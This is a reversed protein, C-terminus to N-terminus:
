PQGIPVYLASPHAKDHVLTVNVTRADAMTEDSVNKGSNFNRQTSISNIPSIVLRLRSGEAVQRSVFMFHDFDYRQAAKTTVLKAQRQSERYRARIQDQTLLISQGNRDIEYVSAEFDTDPQDIAIWAALKFFGSVETDKAFVPTHYVLQKGDQAFVMRQDTLGNPDASAELAATSVDRPDYVYHDPRGSGAVGPAMSGSHMVETANAVSDLFYPKEQATVAELTPAYRWREAGMVYYAVQDKLFDPKAGGAMTWNYWQVHLNPLDVLSDPGFKVGGVEAQPTRTGAHDWPGIIL